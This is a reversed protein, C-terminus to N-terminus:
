ITFLSKIDRDTERNKIRRCIRYLVVLLYITVPQVLLMLILNGRYSFPGFGNMRTCVSLFCLIAAVVALWFLWKQSGLWQGAKSYSFEIAFWLPPLIVIPLVNTTVVLFFTEMDTCEPRMANGLRQWVMYITCYALGTIACLIASKLGTKDGNKKLWDIPLLFGCLILFVRTYDLNWMFYAPANVDHRSLYFVFITLLGILLQIWWKINGAWKRFIMGAWVCLIPFVYLGIIFRFGRIPLLGNREFLYHGFVSLLCAGGALLVSPYKFSKDM